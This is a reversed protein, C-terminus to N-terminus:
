FKGFFSTIDFFVTETKGNKLTIEMEDFDRNKHKLLKQSSQWDVNQRGYLLFLVEYEKAVGTSENTAIMVIPADPSVGSKRKGGKWSIKCALTGNEWYVMEDGESRGNRFNNSIWVNGNGYFMQTPGDAKDNKYNFKGFIKGNPYYRVMRGNLMDDKFQRETVLNGDKDFDKILGDWKDNKYTGARMKIPAAFATYYQTFEGNLHNNKYKCLEALIGKENLFQVPGDPIRGKTIMKKSKADYSQTAIVTTGDQYFTVETFYGDKDFKTPKSVIMGFAVTSAIALLFLVTIIKKM